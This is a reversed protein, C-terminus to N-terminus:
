GRGGAVARVGVRGPLDPVLDRAFHQPEIREKQREDVPEEREQVHRDLGRVPMSEIGGLATEAREVDDAAEQQALALDLREHDDELIQLPDVGLGLGKEIGQDLTQRGRADEQDDAIPRFVVM